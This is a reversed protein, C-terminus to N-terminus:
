KCILINTHGMIIHLKKNFGFSVKEVVSSKFISKPPIYRDNPILKLKSTHQVIKAPKACESLLANSLLASARYVM